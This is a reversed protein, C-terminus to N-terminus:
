GVERALFYGDDGKAQYLPMLVYGAGPARIEGRRDHALLQQPAIRQINAFGPEMRFEDADTIGHRHHVGLAHPLDGRTRALLDRRAGLEPVLGAELVGAAVMALWVVAEHNRETAPDSNQGGEVVAAVCRSGYHGALTGHIVDLLGLVLTVPFAAAFARAERTDACLSFPIGAASTAHLDILYVPGRARAIAGEILDALELQERDEADLAAGARLAVIREESWGRNLDHASYRQGVALAGVNGALMLVDGRLSGRMAELSEVVRRLANVGSPENGHLGGILVLL